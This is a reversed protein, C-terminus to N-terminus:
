KKFRAVRSCGKKVLHIISTYIIARLKLSLALLVNIGSFYVDICSTDFNVGSKDRSGKWLSVEAVFDRHHLRRIKDQLQQSLVYKWKCCDIVERPWKIDKQRVIRKM